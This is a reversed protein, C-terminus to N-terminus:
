TVWTRGPVFARITDFRVISVVRMRLNELKQWDDMTRVLATISYMNINTCYVVLAKDPSLEALKAQVEDATVRVSASNNSDFLVEAGDQWNTLVRRIHDAPKESLTLYVTIGDVLDAKSRDPM